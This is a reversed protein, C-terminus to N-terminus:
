CWGNRWGIDQEDIGDHGSIDVHHYNITRLPDDPGHPDHRTPDTSPVSAFILRVNAWSGLWFRMLVLWKELWIDQEDM